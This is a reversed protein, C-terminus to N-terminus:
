VIDSLDKEFEENLSEIKYKYLDLINKVNNLYNVDIDRTKRDFYLVNHDIEKIFDVLDFKKSQLNNALIIKEIKEM